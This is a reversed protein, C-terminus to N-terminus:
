CSQDNTLQSKQFTYFTTKGKFAQIKFFHNCCRRQCEKPLNLLKMLDSMRTTLTWKQPLNTPGPHNPFVFPIDPFRVSCCMVCINLTTRPSQWPHLSHSTKVIANQLCAPRPLSSRFPLSSPRACFHTFVVQINANRLNYNLMCCQQM